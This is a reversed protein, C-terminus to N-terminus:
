PTLVGAQRLVADTHELTEALSLTYLDRGSEEGNELISRLYHGAIEVALPDTITNGTLRKHEAWAPLALAIWVPRENVLFKVDVADAHRTAIAVMICQYECHVRTGTWREVTTFDEYMDHFEM